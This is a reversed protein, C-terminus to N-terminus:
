EVGARKNVMIYEVLQEYSEFYNEALCEDSFEFGYEKEIAVVIIIYQLSDVPIDRLEYDGYVNFDLEATSLVLEKVKIYIDQM